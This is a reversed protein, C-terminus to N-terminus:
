LQAQALLDFPMSSFCLLGCFYFSSQLRQTQEGCVRGSLTAVGRAVGVVESKKRMVKERQLATYLSHSHIRVRLKVM